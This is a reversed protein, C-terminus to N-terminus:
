YFIVRCFGVVCSAFSGIRVLLQASPGHRTWPSSTVGNDNDNATVIVMAPLSARHERCYRAADAQAKAAFDGAGHATYCLFSIM